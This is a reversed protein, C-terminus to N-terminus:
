KLTQKLRNQHSRRGYLRASFVTMLTIVDKTLEVEFSEDQKANIIEVDVNFWQCLKFVLEHGFRLLRDHHTLILKGIQGNIILKLLKMLGRKRCNMGSGLDTIVDDCGYNLLFDAQTKLDSKQDHSSVRAYGISKRENSIGLLERISEISFRRHNGITRHSEKLKGSRQWRRVTPVSVGLLEATEGISLYKNM